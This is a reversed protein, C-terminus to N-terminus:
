VARKKPNVAAGGELKKIRDAQWYIAEQDRNRGPPGDIPPMALRRAIYEQISLAPDNISPELAERAIEALAEPAAHPLDKIRGLAERLRNVLENLSLSQPQDMM